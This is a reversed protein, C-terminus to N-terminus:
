GRIKSIKKVVAISCSLVPNFKGLSSNRSSSPKVVVVDEFLMLLQNTLIDNDKGRFIKAVFTGGIKLVNCTIHLAALLLQAQIYIDM